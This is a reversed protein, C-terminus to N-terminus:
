VTRNIYDETANARPTITGPNGVVISHDPVDFNVFANPAILVDNGIKINGVIVANTGIWVYNGIVPVGKLKGRNARGITVGPGINCNDGIVVLPNIVITGFHGIYFGKGIKVEPSIQIGLKYSLRRLFYRAILGQFSKAGKARVIRYYFLHRYAQEYFWAKFFWRLGTKGYCRYLDQESYKWM